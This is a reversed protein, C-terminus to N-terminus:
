EVVVEICEILTEDAVRYTIYLWYQTKKQPQIKADIISGDILCEGDSETQGACKLEWRAERIQFPEGNTAHVKIRVHRDEGSYFHIRQM